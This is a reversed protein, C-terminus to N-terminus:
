NSKVKFPLYQEGIPIKRGEYLISTVKDYHFLSVDLYM